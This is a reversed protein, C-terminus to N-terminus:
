FCLGLSINVQNVSSKPTDSFKTIAGEYGVGVFFKNYAVKAGIHWDFIFRNADLVEKDFLDLEEEEESDGYDGYDGYDGLEMNYKYKMKGLAYCGFDFGVYPMVSLGTNPIMFNYMLGVPVKISFMNLSVDILDQISDSKFSYQLGLGYELYLPLNKLIARSQTWGLSIGNLTMEDKGEFTDLGDVMVPNYSFSVSNLVKPFEGNQMGASSSNRNGQSSTVFQASATIASMVCACVLLLKKM